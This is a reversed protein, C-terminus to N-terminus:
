DKKRTKGLTPDVSLPLFIYAAPGFALRLNQHWGNNFPNHPATYVDCREALSQYQKELLVKYELTTLASVVYMVHQALFVAQLLGISALLPFIVKIVFEPDLGGSSISCLLKWTPPISLIGTENDFLFRLGHEKIEESLLEYFPPFLLAVGYWCGVTLFFLTLLFSRYNNYGVCNNLWICHHDFRLICRNCTSCHHCRPPRKIGCKGCFTWKIGPFTEGQESMSVKLEKYELVRKTESNVDLVPDLFCCGGQSNVAKWEMEKDDRKKEILQIYDQSLAVGPSRFTASIYHFIIMVGIYLVIIDHFRVWWCRCGNLDGTIPPVCCWRHIIVSRLNFFYSLLVSAILGVGFAPVCSRWFNHIGLRHLGTKFYVLGLAAKLLVYVWQFANFDDRSRLARNFRIWTENWHEEYVPNVTENEGNHRM